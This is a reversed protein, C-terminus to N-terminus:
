GVEQEAKLYDIAGKPDVVRGDPLEFCTMNAGVLGYVRQMFNSMVTSDAFNLSQASAICQELAMVYNNDKILKNIQAKYNGMCEFGDIHPNPTYTRYRSGYDFGRKANVEIGIRFSYAACVRMRINRDLFVAKMLMKMDSAPIINNCRRGRPIYIYSESNEIAREAMDEDWINLYTGVVFTMYNDNIDYLYLSKHSKFYDLIETDTKGSAIVAELGLRRVENDRRSRMFDAIRSYLDTVSRDIDAILAITNELEQREYRTSFGQLLRQTREGEFDGLQQSIKELAAVYKDPTTERLSTILEMESESFKKEEFYWPLFAPISCQLYHHLAVNLGTTVIVVQKNQPNIWCKVDFKKKYFRSIDEVLTWQLYAEKFGSELKPFYEKASADSQIVNCIYIQCGVPDDAWLHTGMVDVAFEPAGFGSMNSVNRRITNFCLDVREDSKIRPALLARLTSGFSVDCQYSDADINYFCDNAAPTTFPTSTILEKFM